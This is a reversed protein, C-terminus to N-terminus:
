VFWTIMAYRTGSTVPLIAHPYMFNSPFMIATGVKPNLTYAGDFFSWGGGEYEDNMTISLTIIRPNIDYSDVHQKYFGGPEYKLLKYGTDKSISIDNFNKCYEQLANSVYGFLNNDHPSDHLGLMQCSRISKELAGKGVLSSEWKKDKSWNVIEKCIEPPILGPIELIFKELGLGLGLGGNPKNCPTSSGLLTRNDLYCDRFEGVADVYHIFVQAHKDGTYEARWHELEFGRYILMDGPDLEVKHEVGNSDKIWIPWDTGDKSICITASYQCSPRDTHKYLVSGKYYIRAYSYTPLLNKGVTKEMVPKLLPLLSDFTTGGYSSFSTPIQLDGRHETREKGISEMELDRYMTFQIDLLEVTQKNLVGRVIQIGHKEFM